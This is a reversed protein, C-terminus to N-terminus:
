KLASMIKQTEIKNQIFWINGTHGGYPFMLFRDGMLDELLTPDEARLLFDDSAHVVYAAQDEKLLQSLHLLSGSHLFTELDGSQVAYPFYIKELYDTFSFRQVEAIRAGLFAPTSPNELFGLDKVEQSALIVDTLSMRYSLGILWRNERDKLKYERLLVELPQKSARSMFDLMYGLIHNRYEESMKLGQIFFHDLVSMGFGLDVPPNMMLARQFNFHKEKRDHELLFGTQLGGLSYGIVGFSSVRLNERKKLDSVVFKMFEYLDIADVPAYGVLGTRSGGVVFPLSFPSPLTVAHYGMEFMQQSLCLAMGSSAHGGLGPVIFVLPARKPLLKYTIELRHRKELNRLRAREPKFELRQVKAQYNAPTKVLTTITALLANKIPYQYNEYVRSFGTVGFLVVSLFVFKKM